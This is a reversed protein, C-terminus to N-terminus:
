WCGVFAGSTSPRPRFVAINSSVQVCTPFSLVPVYSTASMGIYLGFLMIKEEATFARDFGYDKCTQPHEPILDRYVARALDRATNIQDRPKCDLKHYAWHSDRCAASCYYVRKCGSCLKLTTKPALYKYDACCASCTKNITLQVVPLRLTGESFSHKSNGPALGRYYLVTALALRLLASLTVVVVNDMHALLRVLGCFAFWFGPFAATSPGLVFNNLSSKLRHHHSPPAIFCAM